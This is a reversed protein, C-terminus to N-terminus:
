FAGLDTLAKEYITIAKKAGDFSLRYDPDHVINNRTKHADWVQEIGPLIDPPVKKLREGLTEGEYGIKKLVEDLLSDAEIVALKYESELGTESRAAIKAWQRAMKKTGYPRFTLFEIMDWIFLKRFWATKLFTFILMGFIILTAGIFLIKLVFLWGTFKPSILFSIVPDM